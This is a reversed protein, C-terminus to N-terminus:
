AASEEILKDVYVLYDILARKTKPVLYAYEKFDKYPISKPGDASAHLLAMQIVPLTVFYVEGKKSFEILFFCIAGHRQVKELYEVQHLHINNLDFRTTEITSKAEFYISRGKYTGKYDVTSKKDYVGDIIRGMRLRIVKVPTPLKNIVAIDAKDYQDNARELMNEFAMGRNGQSIKIRRKM